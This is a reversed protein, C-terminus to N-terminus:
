MFPTGVRVCEHKSICKASLGKMSASMLCFPDYLRSIVDEYVGLVNWM